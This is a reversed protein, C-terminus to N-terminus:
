GNLEGTEPSEGKSPAKSVIVRAPRVIKGNLEYGKEMEQVVTGPENEADEVELMAEHLNPDFSAGVAKVAKLGYGELAANFQSYILEIGQKLGEFDETDQDLARRMNDLVPAMQLLMDRLTEERVDSRMRTTRKRFNDLEAVSRLYRDYHAAAEKRVEAMMEEPSLDKVEEEDVDEGVEREGESQKQPKVEPTDGEAENTELNEQEVSDSETM